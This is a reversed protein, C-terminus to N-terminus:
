SPVVVCILLEFLIVSFIVGPEQSLDLTWEGAPTMPETTDDARVSVASTPRSRKGTSAPKAKRGQM